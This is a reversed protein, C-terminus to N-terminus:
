SHLVYTYFQVAQLYHSMGFGRSLLSDLTWMTTLPATFGARFATTLHGKLPKNDMYWMPINLLIHYMVGITHIMLIHWSYGAQMAIPPLQPINGHCSRGAGGGSGKLIGWIGVLLSWLNRLLPIKPPAPLSGQELHRSCSLSALAPDTSEAISCDSEWVSRIISPCEALVM